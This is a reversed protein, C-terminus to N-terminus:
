RAGASAANAAAGLRLIFLELGLAKDIGGSKMAVDLDALEKMLRELTETRFRKAQEGAIKVAYPHAGLQSAIQPGSFGQKALEKAGLMMRFQRAILSLLKIPEEKEKLLDHFITMAREPRLKALEEVLLFVNQESTRVALAEVHESAIANGKGVYLSLKEMESAITACSGGVRALLADIADAEIKVGWGAAKKAIWQPLEAPGLPAFPLVVAASKLTKVIKKREDLKDSPVTLVLVAHDAPAAAYSQLADVNHEARSPDRGGTLFYAGSAIVIKRPSLFPITEADEIATELPTEGLDYKSLAFDKTDPDIATSVLLDIWEGMVYSESGHLIYIPRVTGQSWERAAQKYDM